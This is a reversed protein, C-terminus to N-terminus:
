SEQLEAESFETNATDVLVLYVSTLSSQYVKETLWESVEQEDRLCEGANLDDVEASVEVSVKKFHEQGYQASKCTISEVTLRQGDLQECVQGFFFNNGQYDAPKIRFILTASIANKM